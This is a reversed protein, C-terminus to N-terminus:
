NSPCPPGPACDVQRTEKMPSCQQGGYQPPPNDCDRAETYTSEGCTATCTTDDYWEGYAGDVLIPFISIYHLQTIKDSLYSLKYKSLTSGFRM